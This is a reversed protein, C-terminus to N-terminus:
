IDWLVSASCPRHWRTSNANDGLGLRPTSKGASLKFMISGFGKACGKCFGKVGEKRAGKYPLIFWDTLGDYLGFWLCEFSAVCASPFGTIEPWERVTDDKYLAPIHHLVKAIGHGLVLPIKLMAAIMLGMGRFFDLWGTWFPHCEEDDKEDYAHGAELTREWPPPPEYIRVTQEPHAITPIQANSGNNGTNSAIQDVDAMFKMGYDRRGTISLKSTTASLPRNM